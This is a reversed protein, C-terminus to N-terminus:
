STELLIGSWRERPDGGEPRSPRRARFEERVEEADAPRGASVLQDAILEVVEARDTACALLRLEAVARTEQRARDAAQLYAAIETRARFLADPASERLGKGLTLFALILRARVVDPYGDVMRGCVDAAADYLGAALCQHVASGYYELAREQNGERAFSDGLDVCGIAHVLLLNDPPLM